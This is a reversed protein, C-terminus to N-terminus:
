APISVIRSLALSYSATTASARVLLKRAAAASSPIDGEASLWGIAATSARRPMRSNLRVVRLTENVSAPSCNTARM